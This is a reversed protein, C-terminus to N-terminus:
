INCGIHNSFSAYLICVQADPPKGAASSSITTQQGRLYLLTERIRKAASSHDQTILSTLAFALLSSLMILILMFWLYYSRVEEQENLKLLVEVM